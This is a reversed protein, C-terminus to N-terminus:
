PGGWWIRTIYTAGEPLTSGKIPVPIPDGPIAVWISVTPGTALLSQFEGGPTWAFLDSLNLGATATDIPILQDNMWFAASAGSDGYDVLALAAGNPAWGLTDFGADFPTIEQQACDTGIAILRLPQDPTAAIAWVRNEVPSWDASLVDPIPDCAPNGAGDFLVLQGGTAPDGNFAAVWGGDASWQPATGIGPNGDFLPTTGLPKMTGALDVISVLPPETGSRLLVRDGAPSWAIFQDPTSGENPGIATTVPANPDSTNVLYTDPDGSADTVQIAVTPGAPAPYIANIQSPLADDAFLPVPPQSLDSAFLYVNYGGNPLETAIILTDSREPVWSVLRPTGVSGFDVAGSSLDELKVWRMNAGLAAPDSILFVVWTRDFSFVPEMSPDYKLDDADLRYPETDGPRLLWLRGADDSYVVPSPLDVGIPELPQVPNVVTLPTPDTGAVVTVPLPEALTYGAPAQMQTVTYDGPTLNQIVIVGPAPEIDGDGNDCVSLPQPGALDFCTDPIPQGTDDQITLSLSGTEPATRENTFTLTAEEGPNVTV